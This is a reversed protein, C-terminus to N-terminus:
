PRPAPPPPPPPPVDVVDYDAPVTFLNQQPEARSINTLRYEVDGTRPDHHQSMLLVKLEPSEWREDTIVIPRDNGIRGAPITETRRTGNAAVGEIAKTGLPEPWNPVNAPRRAPREGPPPPPPPPPPEDSRGRAWGQGSARLKEVAANLNPARDRLDLRSRRATRTNPDLVYTVHAVPDSITVIPQADASPNLANLGLVTQERRIRGESDRYLKATVRRDIRTGDGLTQSVTTVGDASFPAGRVVAYLPIESGVFELTGGLPPPPPPPPAMPLQAQAVAATTTMAVALVLRDIGHRRM